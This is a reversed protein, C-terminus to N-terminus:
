MLITTMFANSSKVEKFSRSFSELTHVPPFNQLISILEAQKRQYQTKSAEAEQAVVKERAWILFFLMLCIGAYGFYFTDTSQTTGDFAKSAYVSVFIGLFAIAAAWYSKRFPHLHSRFETLHDPTKEEM